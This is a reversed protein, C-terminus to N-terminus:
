NKKLKSASINKIKGVSGQMPVFLFTLSLVIFVYKKMEKM